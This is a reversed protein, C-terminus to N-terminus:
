GDTRGLDKGRLENTKLEENNITPGCILVIGAVQGAGKVQVAAEHQLVWCGEACGAAGEEGELLAGEGGLHLVSGSYM